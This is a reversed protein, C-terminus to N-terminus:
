VADGHEYVLEVCRGAGCVRCRVVVGCLCGWMEGVCGGDVVKPSPTYWEEGFRGPRRPAPLGPWWGGGGVRGGAMPWGWVGQVWWEWWVLVVCLCVWEELTPNPLNPPRPDGFRGTGVHAVRGPWM